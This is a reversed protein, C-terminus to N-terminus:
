QVDRQRSLNGFAKQPLVSAEDDSNAVRLQGPGQWPAQSKGLFTLGM